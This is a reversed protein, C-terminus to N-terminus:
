RGYFGHYPREAFSDCREEKCFLIIGKANEYCEFGNTLFKYNQHLFHVTLWLQAGSYPLNPLSPSLLYLGRSVRLDWGVDSFKGIASNLEVLKKEKREKWQQFIIFWLEWLYLHAIMVWLLICLQWSHRTNWLSFCQHTALKWSWWLLTGLVRSHLFALVNRHSVRELSLAAHVEYYSRKGETKELLWLEM